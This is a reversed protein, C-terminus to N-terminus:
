STFPYCPSLYYGQFFKFGLDKTLNMEDETEIKEALLRINPRKKLQEVM